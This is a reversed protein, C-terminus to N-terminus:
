VAGCTGSLRSRRVSRAGLASRPRFRRSRRLSSRRTGFATGLPRRRPRPRPHLRRWPRRRRRRRLRFRRSFDASKKDYGMHKTEKDDAYTFTERPADRKARPPEPPALAAPASRRRNTAATPQEDAREDDGDGDVVIRAPASKRHKLGKFQAAIKAARVQRSLALKEALSLSTNQPQGEEPVNDNVQSVPLTVRTLFKVFFPWFFRASFQAGARGVSRLHWPRWHSGLDVISEARPAM